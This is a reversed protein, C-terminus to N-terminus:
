RRRPTSTTKSCTQLWSWEAPWTDAKRGAQRGTHMMALRLPSKRVPSFRSDEPRSLIALRPCLLYEGIHPILNFPLPHAFFKNKAITGEPGNVVEKAGDFLEQMGEAGAGSAAQYTSMLVQSLRAPFTLKMMLSDAVRRRSLSFPCCRPPVKKLGYKQHLPFLAMIGIATTCNPNSILKKSGKRATDANIEPVCLSIDDM